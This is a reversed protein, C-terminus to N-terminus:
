DRGCRPGSLGGGKLNAVLQAARGIEMEQRHAVGAVDGGIPLAVAFIVCALFISRRGRMNPKWAAPAAGITRPLGTASGCVTAVAMRMPLGALQCPPRRAGQPFGVAKNVFHGVLFDQGSVFQKRARVAHKDFRGRGSAQGPQNPADFGLLDRPLTMAAVM